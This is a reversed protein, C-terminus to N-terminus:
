PPLLDHLVPSPKEPPLTPPGVSLHHASGGSMEATALTPVVDRLPGADELDNQDRTSGLLLLM